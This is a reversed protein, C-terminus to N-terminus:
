EARFLRIDGTPGIFVIGETRTIIGGSDYLAISGSTVGTITGSGDFMLEGSNAGCASCWSGRPVTNYPWPFAQPYGGIPGFALSSDQSALTETHVIADCAGDTDSDNKIHWVSNVRDLTICHNTGRQRALAQAELMGSYLSRAASALRTRKLLRTFSPGALMSVVGIIAVVIMAEILTFGASGRSM